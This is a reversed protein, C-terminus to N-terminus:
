INQIFIELKNKSKKGFNNGGKRSNRIKIIDLILNKINYFVVM